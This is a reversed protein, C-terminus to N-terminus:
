KLSYKATITGRYNTTPFSNNVYPVTKDYSFDLQMSFNDTINYELSPALAIRYNGHTAKGNRGTDFLYEKTENDRISFDVSIRLDRLNNKAGKPRKEDDNVQIGQEADKKSKKDKKNKKSKLFPLDVNKVVYGFNFIMEEARNEQLSKQSLMMNRSKKYDVRISLDSKTKIDVGIVPDFREELVVSPIIYEVYYNKENNDETDFRKTLFNLDTQFQSVKLMSKYGNTIKFSSFIDKLFGYRSLNYEASWNPRPLYDIQGIDEFIDLTVNDAKEGTYAAIFAPIIVAQSQPGYGEAYLANLAHPPIPDPGPFDKKYQRASITKRYESFKDFLAEYNKAFITNLGMYTVEFSGRDMIAVSQFLPTGESINKFERSNDKIFSKKFDVDIKFNNIPELVIKAGFNQRKNNYFQNNFFRNEVIWGKSAANDLWSGFDDPQLGAIFDLGPTKFNDVSGLFESRKTYGPVTTQLDEKYTLKIDRLILFPRFVIKEFATVQREKKKEDKSKDTKKDRREKKDTKKVFGEDITKLYKISKYLKEFDFRSNVSRNQQNQIINGYKDENFPSNGTWTYNANYKANLDIWSLIKINKLPVNYSLDINHNYSKPRGFKRLSEMMYENSTRDTILIGKENRYEDTIGWKQLQDVIAMNTANFNLKLDKTFSWQLNYSRDWNFRREEFTYDIDKPERYTRVNDYKRLQTNFSFANPLLGFHIDKIVKAKIWGVKSFPRIFKSGLSFGYDLTLKQDTENENKIIPTKADMGTYYYGVKVNSPSWPYKTNGLNVNVGALNLSKVTVVDLSRDKIEQKEEATKANNVNETVTLDLDYSDYKPIKITQGFQLYLPLNIKWNSPFFKGMQISTSLDYDIVEEMSRQALKQDLAGFGVSMYNFAGSVSGLDALKVDLNATAAVGGKEELGNVRLENIWIEGDLKESQYTTVGIQVGRIYGLSPNGKIKLKAGQNRKNNIDIKEYIQNLPWDIANRELKLDTFDKLVIDIFNEDLWINEVAQGNALNSLKLPIDYEYYNEVFDRGLRMILHLDGDKIDMDSEAHVFLQLRKFLRADFSTLKYVTLECSDKINEFKLALSKEDQRINDYNALLRERKVNPPSEYGFPVKKENEELGVVDVDFKLDPDDGFKCNVDKRWQNRVIGFEALRFTKPKIFNSFYMRMFQISRLGEIGGVPNGSTIPIRFRYWQEPDGNEPTVTKIDTIYEKLLFNNTDLEMGNTTNVAALPIEFNYYAETIDLSKNDNLEEKDPRLRGRREQNEIDPFNGQPNNYRKYRDNLALSNLEEDGFYQWNDNSVDSIQATPYVSTIKNLYDTHFTLETEDNMGDLGLDMLKIKNKDNPFADDLPTDLPINGWITKKVPVTEGELPLSNEYFQLGDKLIDESVNGLNITMKGNIDGEPDRNDTKMFPNLMWFEIYEVNLAEFDSYRLYRSMGGWRSAPDNLLIKKNDTNDLYIGESFVGYGGPIDFNYPGRESPYFNIDFTRLDPLTGVPIDRDFLDQQYVLRSYPDAKDGSSRLGSEAVYWSLLARNAGYALTNENSEPLSVPTSALNWDNENNLYLKISSGEFDDLIINGGKDKGQDIESSHGPKLAAFETKFSISSPAKTSLFPLKDVARTLWDANTSFDMDLGFIRNNIPDDGYSVKETYPREFLHLYSAGINFNKRVQYDARLGLMNKQTLNFLSNDEFRVNIPRGSQLIAPNIIRIKGAGRDIDYDVGETLTIGGSTVIPNGQLNWTGLSIESSEKAKYEGKLVFRNKELKKRAQVASSNYLDDFRYKDAIAKDKLLTELSKDFPELVPFMISGIRPLITVGNIFDFIGDPQIDGNVNITDLKFVQLLPRKRFGEEPIFRKNSGDKDKYFIDLKFSERDIETTGIYYVNKMMLDWEPTGPKQTKSKLLKVYMVKGFTDALESFEGVRYVNGAREATLDNFNYTYEYSVGMVDEPQLPRNLSLFGLEANYTYESENLKRAKFMEYDRGSELNYISRLNSSTNIKLRTLSDKRIYDEYYSSVWNDPLVNKKTHDLYINQVRPDSYPMSDTYFKIDGEGMDALACIDRLDHTENREPIVWVELRTVRFPTKINPLESLAEEYTERNFHSLFFHRNEDYQEPTIEFEQKIAGKDIQVNKQESRQQSAIATLRLHGFQLETKIGFLNQAGQILNGRLPLSVNGAEIKKLIADENFQESDYKLKIKNDFDFSAKTNYNFNLKMKDGIGGEVNVQIGEDFIPNWVRQARLEFGPNDMITRALGLTLHISGQPKITIENGGFIREVLDKKVDVLAAPDVIGSASLGSKGAGSLQNFYEMRQQQERWKLYEQFTMYTPSRFYENGIKETIIYNGSVPDYEVTKEVSSPDKLDFPNKLSDNVFDGYRPRLTDVGKQTIIEPKAKNQKPKGNISLLSTIITFSLIIALANKIFKM